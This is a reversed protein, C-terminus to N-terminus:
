RRRSPRLSSTAREPPTIEIRTTTTFRAIVSDGAKIENFRTAEVTATVKILQGGSSKLTLQKALYDVATVTALYEYPKVIASSPPTGRPAKKIEKVDSWLPKGAANVPFVEVVEDLRARINDGVGVEDFNRVSGAVRIKAVKDDNFKLTLLQKKRSIAQVRANFVPDTAEVLDSAKGQTQPIIDKKKNSGCGALGGALAFALALILIPSTSDNMGRTLYFSMTINQRKLTGQSLPPNYARLVPPARPQTQATVGDLRGLRLSHERCSSSGRSEGTEDM